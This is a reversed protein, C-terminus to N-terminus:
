GQSCAVVVVSRFFIAGALPPDRAGRPLPRSSLQGGLFRVHSGSVWVMALVDTSLLQWAGVQKLM